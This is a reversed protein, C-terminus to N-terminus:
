RRRGRRGLVAIGSIRIDAYGRWWRVQITTVDRVPVEPNERGVRMVKIAVPIADPALGSYQCCMGRAGRDAKGDRCHGDM